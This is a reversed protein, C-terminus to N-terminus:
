IYQTKIAMFINAEFAKTRQKERKQKKIEEHMAWLSVKLALFVKGVLKGGCVGEILRHARIRAEKCRTNAGLLRLVSCFLVLILCLFTLFRSVVVLNVLIEIFRGGSKQHDQLNPVDHVNLPFM